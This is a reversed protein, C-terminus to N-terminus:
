KKVYTRRGGFGHTDTGKYEPNNKLEHHMDKHSLNHKLRTAKSTDGGEYKFISYNGKAKKIAKQKPTDM